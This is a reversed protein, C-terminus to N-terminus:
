HTGKVIGPRAILGKDTRLIPVYVSSVFEFKDRPFALDVVEGKVFDCKIFEEGMNQAGPLQFVDFKMDWADKFCENVAAYAEREAVSMPQKSQEKSERATKFMEELLDSRGMRKMTNILGIESEPDMGYKLAVDRFLDCAGLKKRAKDYISAANEWRELRDLRTQADANSIEFQELRSQDANIKVELASRQKELNALKEKEVALDNRADDREQTLSSKEHRFERVVSELQANEKRLKQCEEELESNKSNFEVLERELRSLVDKLDGVRAALEGKIGEAISKLGALETGKATHKIDQEIRQGTEELTKINADIGAVLSLSGMNGKITELREDLASRMGDAFTKLEHFKKDILIEQNNFRTEVDQKFGSLDFTIYFSDLKNQLQEIQKRFNDIPKLGDKIDSVKNDLARYFETKTLLASLDNKNLLSTELATRLNHRSEKLLNELTTQSMTDAGKGLGLFSKVKDVLDLLNQINGSNEAIKNKNENIQNKIPAWDLTGQIRKSVAEMLKDIFEQENSGDFLNQRAQSTQSSLSQQLSNQINKLENLRENVATLTNSIEGPAAMDTGQSQTSARYSSGANNIFYNTLKELSDAISQWIQPNNAMDNKYQAMDERKCEDM